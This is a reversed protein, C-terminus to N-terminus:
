DEVNGDMIPRLEATDGPGCFFQAVHEAREKSDVDVVFFGALHEKGEAYPGDTVVRDQERWRFLRASRPDGLAEGALLEGRESLEAMVSEWEGSLRRQTEEPEAQYEALYDSTPHGWPEPNSHILIVFKM